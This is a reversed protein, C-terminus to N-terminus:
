SSLAQMSIAYVVSLSLSRVFAIISTALLRHSNVAKLSKTVALSIHNLTSVALCSCSFTTAGIGAGFRM